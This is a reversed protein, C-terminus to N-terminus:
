YSLLPPTLTKVTRPQGPPNPTIGDECLALKGSGSATRSALVLATTGGITLGGIFAPSASTNRSDHQWAVSGQNPGRSPTPRRDMRYRYAKGHPASANQVTCHPLIGGRAGQVCRVGGGCRKNGPQM